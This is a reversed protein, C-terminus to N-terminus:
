FMANEQREFQGSIQVGRQGYLLNKGTALRYRYYDKKMSDDSWEELDIGLQKRITPLHAEFSPLTTIYFDMLFRMQTKIDKEIFLNFQKVNTENLFAGRRLFARQNVYIKLTANYRSSSFETKRENTKHQLLDYLKNGIPNEMTMMPRDGYKSKVYAAIYKKTPIEVPMYGKM